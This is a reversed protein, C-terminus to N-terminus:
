HGSADCMPGKIRLKEYKFKSLGITKRLRDKVTELGPSTLEECIAANWVDGTRRDVWYNGIMVSVAGEGSWLASLSYFRATSSEKGFEISFKPLQTTTRPLASKVLAQAEQVTIDRPESANSPAAWAASVPIVATMVWLM